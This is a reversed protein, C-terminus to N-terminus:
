AMQKSFLVWLDLIREDKIEQATEDLIDITLQLDRLTRETVGPRIIAYSDVVSVLNSAATMVEDSIDSAQQLSDPSVM